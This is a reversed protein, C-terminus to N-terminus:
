RGLDDQKIRDTLTGLERRGIRIANGLGIQEDATRLTRPSADLPGLHVDPATRVGGVLMRLLSTGNATVL